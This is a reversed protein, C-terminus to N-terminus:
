GRLKHSIEPDSELYFCKLLKKNIDQKTSLDPSFRKVLLAMEQFKDLSVDSTEVIGGSISRIDSTDYGKSEFYGLLCSAYAFNKLPKNHGSKSVINSACGSCLVIVFVLSVYRLV